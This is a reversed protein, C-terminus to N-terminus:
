GLSDVRVADRDTTFVTRRSGEAHFTVTYPDVTEIKAINKALGLDTFYPFPVSYAKRFPQEPDLMRQYTFVVDDANFERTPKFFSTTQFKVGHRLHFTYTLGDPSVDWKEALGPEIDTSGHAFEILRNYVTYSGASFEVSTTYQATDFGAPSGESCFVLTKDPLTAADAAAPSSRHESGRLREVGSPLNPSSCVAVQIGDDREGCLLWTLQAEIM